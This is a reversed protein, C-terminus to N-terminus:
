PGVASRDCRRTVPPKRGPRKGRARFPLRRMRAPGTPARRRVLSGGRQSSDGCRIASYKGALVQRAAIVVRARERALQLAAAAGLGTSGGTVIAVKGDFTRM